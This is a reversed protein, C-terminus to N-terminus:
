VGFDETVPSADLRRAANNCTKHRVVAYDRNGANMGPDEPTVADSCIQCNGEVNVQMRGRGRGGRRGRDRARGRGASGGLAPLRMAEDQILLGIM